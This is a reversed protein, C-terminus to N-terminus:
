PKKRTSRRREEAEAQYKTKKVDAQYENMEGTPVKDMEDSVVKKIQDMSISKDESGRVLRNVAQNRVQEIIENELGSQGQQQNEQQQTEVRSKLEKIKEDRKELEKQHREEELEEIKEELEKVRRNNQTRPNNAEGFMGGSEIMELMKMKARYNVMKSIYDDISSFVDGEDSDESLERMAEIMLDRDGKEKALKMKKLSKKVDRTSRDGLDLTKGGKTESTEMLSSLDISTEEGAGSVREEFDEPLNISPERKLYNKWIGERLLYPNEELVKRIREMYTGVVRSAANNANSLDLQKIQKEVANSTLPGTLQARNIIWEREKKKGGLKPDIELAKKLCGNPTKENVEESIGLAPVEEGEGEDTETEKLKKRYERIDNKSYDTNTAIYDLNVVEECKPCAVSNGTKHLILDDPIELEKGCKSGKYENECELPM